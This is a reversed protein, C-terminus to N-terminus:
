NSHSIFTLTIGKDIFPAESSSPYSGSFLWSHRHSKSPPLFTILCFLKWIHIFWLNLFVVSGYGSCNCSDTLFILSIVVTQIFTQSILGPLFFTLFLLNRIIFVLMSHCYKVGRLSWLMNLWTNSYNPTLLSVLLIQSRISLQEVQSIINLISM